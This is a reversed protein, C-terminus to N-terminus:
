GPPLRGPPRPARPRRRNAAPPPAAWSAHPAVASDGAAPWAGFGPKGGPRRSVAPRSRVPEGSGKRDTHANRVAPRARDGQEGATTRPSAATVGPRRAGVGGEKLGEKLGQKLGQERRTRGKGCSRPRSLGPIPHLRGAPATTGRSHAAPPAGVVAACSGNGARRGGPPGDVRGSASERGRFPRQGAVLPRRPHRPVTRSCAGSRDPGRGPVAPCASTVGEAVPAITGSTSGVAPPPPCAPRSVPPRVRRSSRVRPRVASRTAAGGAREVAVQEVTARDGQGTTRGETGGTGM